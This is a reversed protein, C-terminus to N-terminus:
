RYHLDKGVYVYGISFPAAITRSGMTPTESVGGVYVSGDSSHAVDMSFPVITGASTEIGGYTAWEWQRSPTMKAVFMNSFRTGQLSFPGIQTNRLFRGAVYLNEQADIALHHVAYVEDFTNPDQRTRGVPTIWLPVGKASIAAVFGGEHITSLDGIKVLGGGLRGGIIINGKPASLLSYVWDSSRGGVNLAWEWQRSPNLKAVYGNKSQSNLLTVGFRARIDFNGAVFVNGSSDVAMKPNPGTHEPKLSVAIITGQVWAWERQPNLMAVFMSQTEAKFTLTGLTVDESAIGLVYLNGQPGVRVDSGIVWTKSSVSTAWVWSGKADLQAVFLSYQGSTKATLSFDGFSARGKFKGVVYAGGSSDLRMEEVVVEANAGGAQQTWQWNGKADISAVFLDTSGKRKLASLTGFTLSESQQLGAIWAGGTSSAVVHAGIDITGGGAGKLWSQCVLPEESGGNCVLEPGSEKDMVNEPLPESRGADAEPIPEPQDVVEVITQRFYPRCLLSPDNDIVKTPGNFNEPRLRFEMYFWCADVQDKNLCAYAPSLMATTCHEGRKDTKEPPFLFLRFRFQLVDSAYSLTSFPSVGPKDYLSLTGDSRVWVRQTQSKEDARQTSVVQLCADWGNAEQSSLSVFRQWDPQSRVVPHSSLCENNTFTPTPSQCSCHPFFCGVVFLLGLLAGWRLPTSGHAM